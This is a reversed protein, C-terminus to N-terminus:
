KMRSAIKDLGAKACNEDFIGGSVGNEWHSGSVSIAGVVQGGMKILLAGGAAVMEKDGNVGPLEPHPDATTPKPAKPAKDGLSKVFDESSMGTKLATYAKRRAMAVGRGPATDRLIVRPVADKDVVMVTIIRGQPKCTDIATQAAEVALNLPLEDAAQACVSTLAACGALFLIRKM